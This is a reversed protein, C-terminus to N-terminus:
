VVFFMKECNQLSSSLSWPTPLAPKRRRLGREKSRLHSDEGETKVHGERQTCGPGVTKKYLCQDYQILAWRSGGLQKLRTRSQAVGSVAAQWAGGGRPNELCFVPTPQWKRRWHMFTFLSLSTVWDHGVRRSGMSQLGGPDEMRPIKWALTRSHPAMAKESFERSPARIAADIAKLQKKFSGTELYLWIRVYQLKHSETYSNLIGQLLCPM